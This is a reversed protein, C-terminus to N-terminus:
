RLVKVARVEPFTYVQNLCDFLTGGNLYQLILCINEKEEFFGYCKVINPHDLLMHLKIEGIFRDVMKSEIIKQKPVRKIAVIFRTDIHEALYVQGFKGRGLM